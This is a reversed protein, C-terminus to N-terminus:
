LIKNGDSPLSFTFKSNADEGGDDGDCLKMNKENEDFFLFKNKANANELKAIGGTKKGIFHLIWRCGAEGKGSVEIEKELVNLYKGSVKNRLTILTKENECSIFTEWKAGECFDGDASM